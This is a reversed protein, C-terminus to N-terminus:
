GDYFQAITYVTQLTTLAFLFIAAVLSITAWPNRFYTQILNARWNNWPKKCYDSIDELVLHIWVVRSDVRDVIIEKSISNFMRALAKDSGLRNILIGKQELIAIDKETDIIFDMFYVYSTIKNGAGPHLGPHLREFAMLNLLKSEMTDDVRLTPLTLVGRHSDFYIDNLSGTQNKEFLIGAERLEVVPRETESFYPVYSSDMNEGGEAGDPEINGIEPVGMDFSPIPEKGFALPYIFRAIKENLWEDEQTQGTEFELLTHLVKMPLQNELLSMDCKLNLRVYINGFVPDNDAYDNINHNVRFIELMFCGDLIMLQLFKPTDEVWIPDLPKYSNRLEQVVQDMRQLVSGIPKQCRKLFYLLARHKHEEMAKLHEEGHHYPGFSAMKPTYARKNLEKVCSPVKYICHRDWLEKEISPDHSKLEEDIQIAWEM